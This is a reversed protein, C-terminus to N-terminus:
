DEGYAFAALAAADIVRIRNYRAEIWGARRMKVLAANAVNRSVNAMEALQSQTVCVGDAAVHAASKDPAAIRLVIAAIRRSSAPIMLEAAVRTALDHGIMALAGIARANEPHASSLHTIVSGPVLILRSDEAARFEVSRFGGRLVPGAGFWSGAAMLNVTRPVLRPPGILVIVSGAIVGFLGRGEDGERYIVDGRAFSIVRGQALLAERFAASQQALWGVQSFLTLDERGTMKM